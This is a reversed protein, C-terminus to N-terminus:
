GAHAARMAAEYERIREMGIMGLRRRDSPLQVYNVTLGSPRLTCVGFSGGAQMALEEGPHLIDHAFHQGQGVILPVGHFTSVRDQHIHGSLIGAVGRGRITEALRASDAIRLSEWETASDTGLAPPHHIMLIKPLDPHDGLRAELWDFQSDDLVGGICWPRSSDLTIVHVGAIAADHDWFGTRGPEELFGEYFGERRDHNGLAFLMPIGIGDLLAKLTRFSAAEGKNTLDGSVAIFAPAPAMAEIMGRVMRMTAVTDSWTGPEDLDPAVVHLDTLHLFTVDAPDSSM